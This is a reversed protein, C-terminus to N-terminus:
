SLKRWGPIKKKTYLQWDIADRRGNERTLFNVLNIYWQQFFSTINDVDIGTSSPPNILGRNLILIRDISELKFKGTKMLDKIRGWEKNMWDDDNLDTSYAFITRFCRLQMKDDESENVNDGILSYSQKFPRLTDIKRAGEYSKELEAATLKSKVEIYALLAEAPVWYPDESLLANRVKDYIIIDLEGSRRDRYDVVEGKNIIGFAKPLRLELFNILKTARADGKLGSHKTDQSKRFAALLNKEAEDLVSEIAENKKNTGRMGAEM